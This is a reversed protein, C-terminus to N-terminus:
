IKNLVTNVVLKPSIRKDFFYGFYEKVHIEEVNHQIKNTARIIDCKITNIPKNYKNSLIPYIDNKLKANKSNGISYQLYITDALYKTGDYKPNYGIDLLEKYIKSKILKQKQEKQKKNELENTKIKTLDNIEKIINNMNTGKSIYSYVLPNKRIKLIMEPEGSIVIISNNYNEKCNKVLYDLIELGNYIPLKLDLLIIDITNKNIANIAEQGDTALMCLRLESNSQVISNILTKSFYINDDVVLMNLM